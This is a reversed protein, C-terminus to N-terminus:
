PDGKKHILSHVDAGEVIAGKAQSMRFRSTDTIQLDHHSLINKGASPGSSEAAAVHRGHPGGPVRAAPPHGAEDDQAQVSAPLLVWAVALPVVLPSVWQSSVVSWQRSRWKM